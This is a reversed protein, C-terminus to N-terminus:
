AEGKTFMNVKYEQLGKAKELVKILADRKRYLIRQEPRLMKVDVSSVVLYLMEIQSKMYIFQYVGNKFSSPDLMRLLRQKDLVMETLAESREKRRVGKISLLIEIHQRLDAEIMASMLLYEAEPLSIIIDFDNDPM